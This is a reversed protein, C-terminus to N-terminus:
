RPRQVLREVLQVEARTVERWPKSHGCAYNVWLSDRAWRPLAAPHSAPNLFLLYDGGIDAGRGRPRDMYFGGSNRYTFFNFHSGLRGKYSGM